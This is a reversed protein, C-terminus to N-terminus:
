INLLYLVFDKQPLSKHKERYGIEIASNQNSCNETKKRLKEQNKTTRVHLGSGECCHRQPSLGMKQDQYSDCVKEKKSKEGKKSIM